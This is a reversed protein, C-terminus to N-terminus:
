PCSVADYSLEPRETLSDPNMCVCKMNTGTECEDNAVRTAGTSPACSLESCKPKCANNPVASNRGAYLDSGDNPCMYGFKEENANLLCFSTSDYKFPSTTTSLVNGGYLCQAAAPALACTGSRDQYASARPGGVLDSGDNQCIYGNKVDSGDVLCFSADYKLPTSAGTIEKGGYWCKSEAAPAACTGTRAQVASQRGSGTLATGDNRCEYGIKVGSSNVVCFAGDFKFPTSRDSLVEGGYLCQAPAVYACAEDKVTSGNVCKLDTSTFATITDKICTNNPITYRVGAYRYYCEGAAKASGSTSQTNVYNTFVVVGLVLVTVAALLAVSKNICVKEGKM